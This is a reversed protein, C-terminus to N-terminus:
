YRLSGRECPSTASAAHTLPCSWHKQFRATRLGCPAEEGGAGLVSETAWLTKSSGARWSIRVLLGM